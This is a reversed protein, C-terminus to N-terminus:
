FLYKILNILIYILGYNQHVIDQVPWKLGEGERGYQSSALNSGYASKDVKANNYNVNSGQLFIINIKNTSM